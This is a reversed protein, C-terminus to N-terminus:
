GDVRNGSKATTTKQTIIETSHSVVLLGGMWTM